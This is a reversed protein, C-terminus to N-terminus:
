FRRKMMSLLEQEDPRLARLRKLKVVFNTAPGRELWFETEGKWARRPAKKAESPPALAKVECWAASKYRGQVTLFSDPLGEFRSAPKDRATSGMYNGGSMFFYAKGNDLDLTCYGNEDTARASPFAKMARVKQHAEVGFATPNQGEDLNFGRFMVSQLPAGTDQDVARIRIQASRRLVIDPARRTQKAVTTVGASRYPALLGAPARNGLNDGGVRIGYSQPLLGTFRYTGDARTTTAGSLLKNIKEPFRYHNSLNRKYGWLETQSIWVCYTHVGVGAAPKGNEYVVRGSITTNACGLAEELTAPLGVQTEPTNNMPVRRGRITRIIPPRSKSAVAASPPQNQARAVLRLPISAGLALCLAAAFAIQFGRRPRKPARNLRTLRKKLAFFGDTMGAALPTTPNNMTNLILAGYSKPALRTLHLTMEDCASETELALFWRACWILPHFWFLSQIPWLLANWILDRRKLHALEHSLLVILDPNQTTLLASPLIIAPRWLGVLCPASTRSELLRPPSVQMKRAIEVLLDRIRAEEVAQCGRLLRRMRAFCLALWGLCIGVGLAYASAWAWMSHSPAAPRSAMLMQPPAIERPSAIAPMASVPERPVPVLGAVPPRLPTAVLARPPLVALRLASPPLLALAIQLLAVRWVWVRWAAPVRGDLAWQAMLALLLAALGCVSARELASLLSNM